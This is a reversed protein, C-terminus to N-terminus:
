EIRDLKNKFEKFTKLGSLGLMKFCETYTINGNYLESIITQAVNKSLVNLKTNWYNGGREKHGIVVDKNEDIYTNCQERSIYNLTCLRYCIAEFSINFYNSLDIVDSKDIKKVLLKDRIYHEPALFQIAVRNCLTEVFMNTKSIIDTEGRLLHAFEHILSFLRGKSSDRGNIFIIPAYDDYLAFARFESVDLTRHTNDDIKGNVVVVIRKKEIKSRIYNFAKSPNKYKEFWNDFVDLTEYLYQTLLDPNDKYKSPCALNIKDIRYRICYDKKWEQLYQMNEVIRKLNLSMNATLKNRITRFDINDIKSQKIPASLFFYGFPFDLSKALKQLDEFRPLQTGNIWAEIKPYVPILKDISIDGMAWKLIGSALRIGENKNM